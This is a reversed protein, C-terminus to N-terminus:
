CSKKISLMGNAFLKNDCKQYTQKMVGILTATQPSVVDYALRWSCSLLMSLKPVNNAPSLHCGVYSSAVLAPAANAMLNKLHMADTPPCV